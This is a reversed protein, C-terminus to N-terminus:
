KVIKTPLLRMLKDARISQKTINKKQKNKKKQHINYGLENGMKQRAAQFNETRNRVDQNADNYGLRSRTPRRRRRTHRM